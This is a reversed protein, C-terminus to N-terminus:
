TENSNQYVFKTGISKRYEMIKDVVEKASDKLVFKKYTTLTIVTDPNAEICEILEANVYFELGNMRIVKIVMIGEKM